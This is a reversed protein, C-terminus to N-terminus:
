VESTYARAKQLLTVTPNQAKPLRSTNSVGGLTNLGTVPASHSTRLRGESESGSTCGNQESNAFKRRAPPTEEFHVPRFSKRPAQPSPGASGPTWVPPPPPPPPAGPSRAPVPAPPPTPAGPRWVSIKLSM